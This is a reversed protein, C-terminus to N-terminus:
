SLAGPGLLQAFHFYLAKEAVLGSYRYRTGPRSFRAPSYYAEVFDLAFHVANIRIRYAQQDRIAHSQGVKHNATVGLEDELPKQFATFLDLVKGKCTHLIARHDDNVLTSFVIPTAGDTQATRDIRAVAERTLDDSAVYPITVQDFKIGGFQSLLSHGLTEATIGTGDSIFFATRAM